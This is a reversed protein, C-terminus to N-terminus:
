WSPPDKPPTPVTHTGPPPPWRPPCHSGPTPQKSSPLPPCQQLRGPPRRPGFLSTGPLGCRLLAPRWQESAGPTSTRELCVFLMDGTVGAGVGGRAVCACGSVGCATCAQLCRQANCPGLSSRAPPPPHRCTQPGPTTRGPGQMFEGRKKALQLSQKGVPGACCPCPLAQSPGGLRSKRSVRTLQQQRYGAEKRWATYRVSPSSMARLKWSPEGTVPLHPPPHTARPHM